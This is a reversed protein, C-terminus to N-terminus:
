WEVRRAADRHKRNIKEENLKKRWDSLEKKYKDLEKEKGDASDNIIVWVSFFLFVLFVGVIVSWVLLTVVIVAKDLNM